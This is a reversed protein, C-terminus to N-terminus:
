ADAHQVPGLTLCGALLAAAIAAKRRAGLRKAQRKTLAAQLVAVRAAIEKTNVKLPVIMKM